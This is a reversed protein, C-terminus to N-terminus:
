GGSKRSAYNFGLSIVVVLGRDDEKIARGGWVLAFGEESREIFGHIFPYDNKKSNGGNESSYPNSICSSERMRSSNRSCMNGANPPGNIGNM